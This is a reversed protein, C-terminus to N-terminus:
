MSSSPDFGVVIALDSPQDTNPAIDFLFKSNFCELSYSLDAIFPVLLNVVVIISVRKLRTLHIGVVTEALRHVFVFM